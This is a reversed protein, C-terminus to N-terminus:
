IQAGRREYVLTYFNPNASELLLRVRSRHVQFDASEVFRRVSPEHDWESVLIVQSDDIARYMRSALLGQVDGFRPLRDLQMAVFDGARGRKPKFVNMQILRDAQQSAM